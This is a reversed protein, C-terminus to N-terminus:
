VDDNASKIAEFEDHAATINAALGGGQKVNAKSAANARLTEIVKGPSTIKPIKSNYLIIFTEKILEKSYGFMDFITYIGKILNSSDALSRLIDTIAKKVFEVSSNSRIARTIHSSLTSSLPNSIANKTVSQKIAAYITNADVYNGGVVVMVLKGIANLLDDKLEKSEGALGAERLIISGLGKQSSVNQYILDDIKDSLDPNRDAQLNSQLIEKFPHERKTIRGTDEFKEQGHKEQLRKGYELNEELVTQKVAAKRQESGLQRLVQGTIEERSQLEKERKTLEELAKINKNEEGYAKSFMGAGNKKRIDSLKKDNEKQANVLREDVNAIKELEKKMYDKFWPPNYNKQAFELLQKERQKNQKQESALFDSQKLVENEQRKLDLYEKYKEQRTKFAKEREAQLKPQIAAIDELSKPLAKVEEEAIEKAQVEKYKALSREYEGRKGLFEQEAQALRKAHQEAIDAHQNYAEMEMAAQAAGKNFNNGFSYTDAVLNQRIYPNMAQTAMASVLASNFANPKM